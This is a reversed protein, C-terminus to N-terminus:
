CLGRALQETSRSNVARVVSGKVNIEFVHPDMGGASVGGESRWRASWGTPFGTVMPRSFVSAQQDILTAAAAAYM